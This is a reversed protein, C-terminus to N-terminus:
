IPPEQLPLLKLGQDVQREKGGTARQGAQLAAGAFPGRVSAAVGMQAAALDAQQQLIDQAARSRRARSALDM